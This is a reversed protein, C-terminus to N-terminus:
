RMKTYYFRFVLYTVAMWLNLNTQEVGPVSLFIHLPRIIQPLDPAKSREGETYVLSHSKDLSCVMIHAKEFYM